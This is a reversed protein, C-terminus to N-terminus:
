RSASPSAAKEERELEWIHVLVHRDVCANICGRSGRSRGLPFALCELPYMYELCKASSVMHTNRVPGAKKGLRDWDAPCPVEHCGRMKCFDSAIRDVSWRNGVYNGHFVIDRARLRESLKEAVYAINVETQVDRSGTVIWVRPMSNETKYMMGREEAARAAPLAQVRAVRRM